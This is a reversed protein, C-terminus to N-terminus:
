EYDDWTESKKGERMDVIKVFASIAAAWFGIAAILWSIVSDVAM